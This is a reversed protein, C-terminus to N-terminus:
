IEYIRTLFALLKQAFRDAESEREDRFNIDSYYAVAWYTTNLIARHLVYHGLEHALIFVKKSLSVNQEILILNESCCYLGTIKDKGRTFYSFKIEFVAINRKEALTLLARYLRKVSYKLTM